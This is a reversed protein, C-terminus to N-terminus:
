KVEMTLLTPMIIINSLIITYFPYFSSPYFIVLICTVYYIFPGKEYCHRNPQHGFISNVNPNTWLVKVEDGLIALLRVPAIQSAYLSKTEKKRKDCKKCDSNDESNDTEM